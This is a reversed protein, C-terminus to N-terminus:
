KSEEKRSKHRINKDFTGSDSLYKVIKKRARSLRSKVTGVNITLYEAINEYSMGSYERMVFIQRQENPLLEVADAISQWLEEKELRTEPSYRIDPIDTDENEGYENLYTISSIPNKKQKRLFDLCLNYTLRYLWGSFKSDGRFSALNIYAKIFAEQSIDLADQENRTMKLALNYVSSQNEKILVEFSSSDGALIKNIINLEDNRTM